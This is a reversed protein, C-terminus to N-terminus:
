YILALVKDVTEDETLKSSDIKTFDDYFSESSFYNHHDKVSEEGQKRQDDRRADREVAVDIDPLLLIKHTLSVYNTLVGWAPLNIYGNIILNYGSEFFNHAVEGTNKGLLEWQKIGEPSKDYIFNSVVFHKISDIDINVSNPLKEALKNSITSKGSGAPGTISLVIQM